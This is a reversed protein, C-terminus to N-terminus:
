PGYKVIIQVVKTSGKPEGAFSGDQDDAEDQRTKGAIQGRGDCARVGACGIDGDKGPIIAEVPRPHDLKEIPSAV